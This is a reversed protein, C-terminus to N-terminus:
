IAKKRFLFLGGDRRLLTYDILRFIMWYLKGKKRLADDNELKACFIRHLCSLAVFSNLFSM